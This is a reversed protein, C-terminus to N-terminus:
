KLGYFLIESSPICSRLGTLFCVNGLAQDLKGVKRFAMEGRSERGTFGTQYLSQGAWLRAQLTSVKTLQHSARSLLTM